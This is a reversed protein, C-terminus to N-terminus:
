SHVHLGHTKHMEFVAARPLTDLLAPPLTEPSSIGSKRTQKVGLVEGFTFTWLYLRSSVWPTTSAFLFAAKSKTM